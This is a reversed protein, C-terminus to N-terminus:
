SVTVRLPEPVPVTVLSGAPISQPATQAASKSSPVTTVSVAVAASPERKAPQCRSQEPVPVQSTVILWALSTLAVKTRIKWSLTVTTPLPVTVLSGDPM